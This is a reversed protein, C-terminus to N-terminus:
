PSRRKSRVAAIAVWGVSVLVIAFVVIDEIPMM